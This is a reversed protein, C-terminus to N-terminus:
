KNLLIGLEITEKKLKDNFNWRYEMREKSFPNIILLLIDM